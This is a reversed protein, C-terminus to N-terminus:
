CNETLNLLVHSLYLSCNQYKFDRLYKKEIEVALRNLAGLHLVDFTALEQKSGTVKATFDVSSFYYVTEVAKCM